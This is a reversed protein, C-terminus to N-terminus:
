HSVIWILHLLAHCLEDNGILGLSLNWPFSGTLKQKWNLKMNRSKLLRLLNTLLFEKAARKTWNISIWSTHCKWYERNIITKNFTFCVAVLHQMFEASKCVDTEMKTFHRLTLFPVNVISLSFTKTFLFSKKRQCSTVM